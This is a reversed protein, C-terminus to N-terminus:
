LDDILNQIEEESLEELSADQKSKLVDLLKQKKEARLVANEADKREQLKTTVIYKVIEIKLILIQNTVDEGLLSDETSAKYDRNLERYIHDLEGLTLDWLHEVSLYGKYQWRLKLRVAQEFISM